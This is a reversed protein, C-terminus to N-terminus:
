CRGLVLLFQCCGPMFPAVGIKSVMLSVWCKVRAPVCCLGWQVHGWCRTRWRKARTRRWALLRACSAAAGAPTLYLFSTLTPHFALLLPPGPSCRSCCVDPRCQMHNPPVAHPVAHTNPTCFAPPSASCTSPRNPSPQMNSLRSELWVMAQGM